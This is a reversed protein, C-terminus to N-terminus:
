RGEKGGVLYLNQATMMLDGTLNSQIVGFELALKLLLLGM